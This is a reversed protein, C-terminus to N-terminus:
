KCVWVPEKPINIEQPPISIIEIPKTVDQLKIPIPQIPQERITIPKQTPLSIIGLTIPQPEQTKIPYIRIPQEPPLSTIGLTISTPEPLTSLYRIPLSPNYCVLNNFFETIFYENIFYKQIFNVVIIISGFITLLIFIISFILSCLLFVIDINKKIEIMKM